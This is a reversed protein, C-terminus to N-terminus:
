TPFQQGKKLMLTSQETTPIKKTLDVLRPQWHYAVNGTLPVNLSTLTPKLFLVICKPTFSYDIPENPLAGWRPSRTRLRLWLAVKQPEAMCGLFPEPEEQLHESAVGEAHGNPEAGAEETLRPRLEGLHARLSNTLHTFSISNSKTSHRGSYFHNLIWPLLSYAIKISMSVSSCIM